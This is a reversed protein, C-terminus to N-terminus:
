VFRAYVEKPVWDLTGKEKRNASQRSTSLDFPLVLYFLPHAARMTLWALASACETPV